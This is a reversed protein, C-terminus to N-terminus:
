CGNRKKWMEEYGMAKAFAPVTCDKGTAQGPTPAIGMEEATAMDDFGAMPGTHKVWQGAGVAGAVFLVLVLIQAASLRTNSRVPVSYGDITDGM